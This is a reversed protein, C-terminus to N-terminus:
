RKRRRSFAEYVHPAHTAARQLPIIPFLSARSNKTNVCFYPQTLIYSTCFRNIRWQAPSALPDQIFQLSHLRFICMLNWFHKVHFMEHFMGHIKWRASSYGRTHFCCFFRFPFIAKKSTIIWQYSNILFLPRQLRLHTPYLVYVTLFIELSCWSCLILFRTM